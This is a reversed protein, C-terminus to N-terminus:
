LERNLRRFMLLQLPHDTSYSALVDEWKMLLWPKSDNEGNKTFVVDDAIFAAIHILTGDRNLLLLLDGLTPETVPKYNTELEKTWVEPDRFREEPTDNFFNMATWSCNPPPHAPDASPVPYTNIKKRAFPPLLQAVDITVSGRVRTLSRFLIELDKTHYGRGWYAALAGVDSKPRIRLKMLLSSNGALTKLVQRREAVNPIKSLAEMADSFCLTSGREYVLGRILNWTPPTFVNQDFWDDFGGLRFRFPWCQLRNRPSKGLESYLKARSQRSLGLVIEDGPIVTVGNTEESWAEPNSLTAQQIAPLDCQLFLNTLQARTYGEFFWRAKEFGGDEVPLFEDPPELNIRVYELEGWPGPKGYYIPERDHSANTTRCLAPLEHKRPFPFGLGLKALFALQVVCVGLLARGALSSFVGPTQPTTAKSM